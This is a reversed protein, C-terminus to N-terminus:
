ARFRLANPTTYFGAEILHAALQTGSIPEGNVTSIALKDTKARTLVDVLATAATALHANALPLLTKVGREMYRALCGNFLVVYAGAGRGARHGATARSDVTAGHPDAADTGALGA